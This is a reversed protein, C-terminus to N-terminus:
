EWPIIDRGQDDVLAFDHEIDGGEFKEPHDIADDFMENAKEEAAAHDPADFEMAIRLTREMTLYYKM